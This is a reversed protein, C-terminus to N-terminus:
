ILRTLPHNVGQFRANVRHNPNRLTCKRTLTKFLPALYAWILIEARVNWLKTENASLIQHVNAMKNLLAQTVYIYLTTIHIFSAKFIANWKQPSNSM